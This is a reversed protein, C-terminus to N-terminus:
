KLEVTVNVVARVEIEGPTIPTQVAADAQGARAAMMMTKPQIPGFNQEEIRVIAGLTRKAGAAMAEARRMAAEVAAKLAEQEVAQENKLEFRPGIISLATGRATNAADLVDGLKALDDVRVEIQNRAVYGRVTGKGDNWDMEPTLSYATTRIAEAAVGSGRLAAQVATMAEAGKRRAEAARADRGETAISLWARDPARTLTAEGQTVVVPPQPTALQAAAPQAMLLAAVCLTRTLM